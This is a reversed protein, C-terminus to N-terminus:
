KIRVLNNQSYNRLKVNDHKLFIIRLIVDNASFRYIHGTRKNMEIIM